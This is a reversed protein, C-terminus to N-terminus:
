IEQSLGVCARSSDVTTGACVIVGVQADEARELIDPIESPAYHDLHTHSDCLIM